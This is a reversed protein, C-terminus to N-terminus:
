KNIINKLFMVVILFIKKEIQTAGNSYTLDIIINFNVMSHSKLIVYNLSFESTFQNKM